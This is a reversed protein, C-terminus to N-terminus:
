DLRASRDSKALELWEEVFGPPKHYMSREALEKDHALQRAADTCLRKPHPSVGVRHLDLRDADWCTQVTVDAETHGKTHYKCAFYLLDFQANTLPPLRDRLTHALDGGRQGHDPDRHENVRRADHFLAFLEVILLDARTDAALRAGHVLVRGWHPLGHIGMPELEYDRLIRQFVETSVPLSM